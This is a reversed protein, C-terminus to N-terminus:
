RPGLVEGLSVLANLAPPYGNYPATQLITEITEERTLGVNVTSQGFKRIQSDLQLVTFSAMAVMMRQRLDLGPRVWIDGYAFQIATDYLGSTVDNGPDAYGKQHREGHLTAMIERGRDDLEAVTMAARRTDDPDSDVVLGREGFIEEAIALASETRPQGGYIATQIFIEQVARPSLGEDLALGVHRRLAIETPVLCLATLVPIMREAPSLVTRGGIVGWVSDDVLDRYGPAALGPDDDPQGARRRLAAGARRLAHRDQHM